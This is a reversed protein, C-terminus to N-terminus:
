DAAALAERLREVDGNIADVLDRQGYNGALEAARELASLAGDADGALARAQALKRLYHPTKANVPTLTKELAAIAPDVDGRALLTAGVLYGAQHDLPDAELAKSFNELAGASDGLNQLCLGLYKYTKASGGDAAIAAGFAEVGEEFRDEKLMLVGYNSHLSADEPAIASGARYHEAAKDANGISGYLGILNIHAAVNDPERDVLQELVVIAQDVRGASSLRGASLIAQQATGRLNDVRTLVIDNTPPGFQKYKEFLATHVDALEDNGQERYLGALAFHAAGYEPTTDLARRLREIAETTKGGAALLRGYALNARAYDPADDVLKSLMSEAKDRDGELRTLEALELRLPAYDANIAAARRLREIAEPNRGQDALIVAALYPPDFARPALSGAQDYLEVALEPRGYAHALMALRLTSDIDAPDEGLRSILPAVRERVAEPFADAGPPPPPPDTCAAVACAIGIVLALFGTRRHAPSFDQMLAYQTQRQPLFLKGCVDGTEPIPRVTCCGM